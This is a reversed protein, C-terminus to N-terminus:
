RHLNLRQVTLVELEGARHVSIHPGSPPGLSFRTLNAGRNRCRGWFSEGGQHSRSSERRALTQIAAAQKPGAFAAASQAATVTPTLTATPSGVIAHVVGTDQGALSGLGGLRPRERWRQHHRMDSDRRAPRAPLVRRGPARKRTAMRRFFRGVFRVSVRERGTCQIGALLTVTAFGSGPM